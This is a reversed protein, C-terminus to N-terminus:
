RPSTVADRLVGGAAVLEARAEAASMGRLLTVLAVRVDGDAAALASSCAAVDAGTVELLVSLARGRLKANTAVVGIMLNSYTRGLRVMTATSIANLVMKQATAAKLRTSGTVAEPGTDVAVHVDVETGIQALPNASVLVARAGISMAHRLAGVVYPSRGSASLGVVVDRDTVEGLDAAGAAADDEVDELLEGLAAPGGAHHAVFWDTPVGFTQSIEVADMTAVRGSTGAGVYHVRGGSSLGAVALDVVAAVQKLVDAVAPAVARDEDNLLRVVDITPLLDIDLTRPNRGETPSVVQIVDAASDTDFLDALAVLDRLDTVIVDAAGLEERPTTTTVAVCRMGAARVAAVGAASDEVGLAQAPDVGLRACALAYGQPDPKGVLVDEATVVVEFVGGLGLEHLVALAYARGASTVLGLPMGAQSLRSVADVAGPVPEVGGLPIAAEIEAVEARLDAPTRGPFLDGLDALSDIGRRGMLRRLLHEDVPIGYGGFFRQWVVANRQESLVLTGDLDFVVAAPPVEAAPRVVAAPQVEAAPPSLGV